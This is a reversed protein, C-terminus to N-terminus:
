RTAMRVLANRIHERADEISRDTDTSWSKGNLALARALCADADSLFECVSPIMPALDVHDEGDALKLALSAEINGQASLSKLTKMYISLASM